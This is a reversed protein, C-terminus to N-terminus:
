RYNSIDKVKKNATITLIGDSSMVSTIATMDTEQPLTFHRRFTSFPASSRGEVVLEREGVVKVEVDGGNFESM